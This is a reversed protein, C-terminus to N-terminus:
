ILSEIKKNKDNFLLISIEVIAQLVVSRINM